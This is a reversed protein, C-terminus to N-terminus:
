KEEERVQYPQWPHLPCEVKGCDVKGDVYNNMCQACKARISASAILRKGAQYKTLEATGIGTV